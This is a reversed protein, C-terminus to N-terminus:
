PPYTAVLAESGFSVQPTAIAFADVNLITEGQIQFNELCNVTEFCSTIKLEEETQNVGNLTEKTFCKRTQTTTQGNAKKKKMLSPCGFNKLTWAKPMFM